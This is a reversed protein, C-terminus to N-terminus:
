TLKLTVSFRNKSATVGYTSAFAIVVGDSDKYYEDGYIVSGDANGGSKYDYKKFGAALAKERSVKISKAGAHGGTKSWVMLDANYPDPKSGSPMIKKYKSDMKAEALDATHERNKKLKKAKKKNKAIYKNRQAMTLGPEGDPGVGLGAIAGSGVNNAPEEKIIKEEFMKDLDHM